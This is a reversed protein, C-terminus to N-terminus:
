KLLATFDPQDVSYNDAFSYANYGFHTAAMRNQVVHKTCRSTRQYVMWGGSSWWRSKEGTCDSTRRLQQAAIFSKLLIWIPRSNVILLLDLKRHKLQDEPSKPVFRAQVSQTFVRTQIFLHDGCSSGISQTLIQFYSVTRSCDINTTIQRLPNENTPWVRRTDGFATGISLHYKHQCGERASEPPSQEANEKIVLEIESQM